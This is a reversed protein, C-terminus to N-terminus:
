VLQLLCTTPARARKGMLEGALQDDLALSNQLVSNVVM